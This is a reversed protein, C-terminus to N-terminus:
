GNGKFSTCCEGRQCKSDVWTPFTAMEIADTNIILEGPLCDEKKARPGDSRGTIEVAHADHLVLHSERVEVIKGRYTYRICWIAIYKGIYQSFKEELSKKM